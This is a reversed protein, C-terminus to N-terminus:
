KRRRHKKTPDHRHYAPQNKPAVQPPRHYINRELHAFAGAAYIALQRNPPEIQGGSSEIDIIVCRINRDALLSELEGRDVATPGVIAVQHKFTPERPPLLPEESAAEIYDFDHPSLPHRRRDPLSLGHAALDGGQRWVEMRERFTRKRDPPPLLKQPDYGVFATVHPIAGGMVSSAMWCFSLPNYKSPITCTISGTMDLREHQTQM